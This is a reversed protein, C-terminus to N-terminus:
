KELTQLRLFLDIKWNEFSHKGKRRSEALDNMTVALVAEKHHWQRLEGKLIEM